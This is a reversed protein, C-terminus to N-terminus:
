FTIFILFYLDYRITAFPFYIPSCIATIGLVLGINAVNSGMINGIAMGPAGKLNAMISVILEPLSTGFAVLTIGIIVPTINYKLAVKKSGTILFDAGYYVRNGYFSVSQLPNTGNVGIGFTDYAMVMSTLIISYCILIINLKM